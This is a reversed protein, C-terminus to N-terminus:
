SVRSYIFSVKTSVLVWAGNDLVEGKVRVLTERERVKGKDKERAKGGRIRRAEEPRAADGARVAHILHHWYPPLPRNADQLPEGSGEGAPTWGVRGVGVGDTPSGNFM